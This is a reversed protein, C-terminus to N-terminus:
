ARGYRWQGSARRCFTAKVRHTMDGLDAPAVGTLDTTIALFACGPPPDLVQVLYSIRTDPDSWSVRAEPDRRAAKDASYRDLFTGLRDLDREGLLREGLGRPTRMHEMYARMTVRDARSLSLWAHARRVLEALEARTELEQRALSRAYAAQKEPSAQRSAFRAPPPDAAQVFREMEDFLSLYGLLAADSAPTGGAADMAPLWAILFLQLHGLAQWLPHEARASADEVARQPGAAMIERWSRPRFSDFRVPWLLLPTQRTRERLSEYEPHYVTVSVGMNVLWNVPGLAIWRRGGAPVLADKWHRSYGNHFDAYHGSVRVLFPDRPTERTEIGLRLPGAGAPAALALGLAVCVVLRMAEPLEPARLARKFGNQYASAPIRGM